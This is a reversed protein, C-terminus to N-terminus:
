PFSPLVRVDPHHFAELRFIPVMCIKFEKFVVRFQVAEPLRKRCIVLVGETIFYPFVQGSSPCSGTRVSSALQDTSGIAVRVLVVDSQKRDIEFANGKTM